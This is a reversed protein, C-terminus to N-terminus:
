DHEYEETTAGEPTVTVMVHDGFMEEYDSGSFRELFARVARHAPLLPDNTPVPKQLTRDWVTESVEMGNIEPDGINAGFLCEDGDNWWPTYQSWAFFEM